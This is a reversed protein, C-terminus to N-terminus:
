YCNTTACKNGEVETAFKHNTILRMCQLTGADRKHKHTASVFRLFFRNVRLLNGGLTLFGTAFRLYKGHRSNKLEVEDEETWEVLVPPPTNSTHIEKKIRPCVM